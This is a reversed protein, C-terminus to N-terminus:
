HSSIPYVDPVCGAGVGPITQSQLRMPAEYPPLREGFFPLIVGIIMSM